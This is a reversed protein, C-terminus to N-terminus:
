WSRSVGDGSRLLGPVLRARDWARTGSRVAAAQQRVAARSPFCIGETELCSPSSAFDELLQCMRWTFVWSGLHKLAGSALCM